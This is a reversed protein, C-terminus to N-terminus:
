TEFLLQMIEDISYIKVISKWIKLLTGEYAAAHLINSRKTPEQPDISEIKEYGLFQLEDIPFNRLLCGISLYEGQELGKFMTKLSLPNTSFYNEQLLWEFLEGKENSTLIDSEYIALGLTDGLLTLLRYDFCSGTKGEFRPQFRRVGLLYATRIYKANDGFQDLSLQEVNIYPKLAAALSEPSVQRFSIQELYTNVRELITLILKM